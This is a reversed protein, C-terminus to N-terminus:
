PPPPDPPLPRNHQEHESEPIGLPKPSRRPKDADTVLCDNARIM